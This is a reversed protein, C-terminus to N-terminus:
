NVVISVFNLFKYYFVIKSLQIIIVTKNGAHFPCDSKLKFEFNKSKENSKGDGCMDKM